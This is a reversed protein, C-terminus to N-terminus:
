INTTKKSLEEETIDPMISRWIKKEDETLARTRTGTGNSSTDALHRLTGQEEHRIGKALLEEGQTALYAQKLNGTKEWMALTDAPLQDLSTFKQGTLKNIEGLQTKVFEAKEREEYQALKKMRPDDALRQQILKEVVPAVTEEDLGAEDMVKRERAAKLANYNEYGLEKAIREQTEAETKHRVENIRKSVAKTEPTSSTSPEESTPEPDQQEDPDRFLDDVNLELVEKEDEM